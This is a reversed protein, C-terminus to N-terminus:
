RDTTTRNEAEMHKISENELQLISLMERINEM